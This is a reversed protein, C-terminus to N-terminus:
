KKITGIKMVEKEFDEKPVIAKSKIRSRYNYITNVSYRLYKAIHASDKIGLRILAYIRLEVTMEGPRPSIVADKELLSNFEDIFGPLISLFMRDFEKHLFDNEDEINKTSKCFEHLEPIKGQKLLKIIQKRYEAMKDLYYPPMGLFMGIYEEKIHNTQALAKNLENLKKNWELQDEHNQILQAQACKLKKMQKMLFIVTFILGLSLISITCIFVILHKQYQINRNAYETNIVSVLQSVRLKYILSKSILMNNQAAQIYQQAREINNGNEFIESAILYMSQSNKITGKIDSIAGLALYQLLEDQNENERAIHAKWLCIFSYLRTGKQAQSLLHDLLDALRQGQKNYRYIYCRIDPPLMDFNDLESMIENKSEMFLNAYATTNIFDYSNQSLYLHLRFKNSYYDIQQAPTLEKPSIRNLHYQAEWFLGNIIFLNVRNIQIDFLLKQNKIKKALQYKKDLYYLASDYKYYIYEDYIKDNLEFQELPTTTITNQLILSDIRKQRKRIYHNDVKIENDLISLLSDTTHNYASTKLGFLLLLLFFSARLM